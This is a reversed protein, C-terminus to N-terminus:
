ERAELLCDVLANVAADPRTTSLMGIERTLRHKGLPIMRVGLASAMNSETIPLIAVGLGKGVLTLIAQM